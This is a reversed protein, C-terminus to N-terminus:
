SNETRLMDMINEKRIKSGSYFMTVGVITFVAIVAAIVSGWPIVFGFMFADAMILYLLRMIVFSIPLGYLLAKLGYFISEYHIMKYFGKPTMGVSRMM